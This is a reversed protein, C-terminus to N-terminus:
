VSGRNAASRGAATHSHAALTHARTRTRRLACWINTACCRTAPAGSTWSRRGPRRRAAGTACNGSGSFPACAARACSAACVRRSCRATLPLTFPAAPGAWRDPLLSPPAPAGCGVCKTASSASFAIMMTFLTCRRGSKSTTKRPTCAHLLACVHPQIPTHSASFVRTAVFVAFPM